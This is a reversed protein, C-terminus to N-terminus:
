FVNLLSHIGFKDTLGTMARCWECPALPYHIKANEILVAHARNLSQEDDFTLWIEMNNGNTIKKDYHAKESLALVTKSNIVIEAHANFEDDESAKFCNKSTANFAKCYFDVAEMTGTLYAMFVMRM